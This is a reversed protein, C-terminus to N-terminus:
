RLVCSTVNEVVKKLITHGHMTISEKQIVGVSAILELKM